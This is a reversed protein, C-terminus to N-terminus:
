YKDELSGVEIRADQTMMLQPMEQHQGSADTVEEHEKEVHQRYLREDFDIDVQKMKIVVFKGFGFGIL